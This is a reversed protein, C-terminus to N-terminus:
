QWWWNHRRTSWSKRSYSFTAVGPSTPGAAGLRRASRKAPQFPAAAAGGAAAAPM